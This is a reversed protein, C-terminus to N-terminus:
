ILFNLTIDQYLYIMKERDGADEVATLEPSGKSYINLESLMVDKNEEL